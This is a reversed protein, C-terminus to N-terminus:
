QNYLLKAAFQVLQEAVVTKNSLPIQRPPANRSLLTVVNTPSGFGAGEATIDNAAIADLNKRILKDQAHEILSQTEAAFGMSVKPYGTQERQAGVLALIDDNKTLEITMSDSPGKKIKQQAAQAPRFDAVAAAMMLVDCAVNALVADRLEQASNVHLVQAGIPLPLHDGVTSILTVEAGADLAAQALAYGQKGSSHNSIFRVPDIAERTGGASVVVKAGKLAGTHQGLIRRVQGLLTQTEPLRGRGELGSAFRGWEPEIIQVGFTKLQELNSQTAPHEYMGGDMAPAVVVPCRAALFTVSLLDDSHGNALKALTNATAPAILFLDASEALGVHAIHAPLGSANQSGKWLDTYVPRGTVSQFALPTVFQQAAETMIVEVLVGAQTLKSALDISKYAAISGSVGLVIRKQNLLTITM